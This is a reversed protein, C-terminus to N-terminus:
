RRREQDSPSPRRRAPANGDMLTEEQPTVQPEAAEDVEVPTKPGRGLAAMKVSVQATFVSDPYRDMILSFFHAARANDFIISEHIWGIAYLAKPAYESNPYDDAIKQYTDIAVPINQDTFLAREADKFLLAAPEAVKATSEGLIQRAAAAQESGPHTDILIRFLSDRVATNRYEKEHLLAASYIAKAAGAHEGFLSIVEDYEALASDVQGFQFLYAEALQLKNAVLSNVRQVRAIENEDVPPRETDPVPLSKELAALKRREEMFRLEPHVGHELLLLELQTLGYANSAEAMLAGGQAKSVLNNLRILEGIDKARRNAEEVMTSKSYEIKVKHYNEKAKAFSRLDEQYIQGMRFYATAAAETRKNELVVLEYQELADHIRSSVQLNTGSLTENIAKGEHYTIDALELQVHGRRAKYTENELLENCVAVAEKFKGALKLAKAYSLLADFQMARNSDHKLCAKFSEAAELPKGNVIQCEGLKFYAMTKVAKDRSTHAAAKYELEAPHFNNQRFNMEGLLYRAEERVESKLKEASLLEQLLIRASAYDELEINTKALWLRAPQFYSGKPFYKILEQFKRQAKIYDQKYFFSEGLIFLADDVYKSNPYVELIKSAKEITEDYKKQEAATPIDGQRREREKRAENHLKKTNHFTNFYACSSFSLCCAMAALLPINRYPIVQLFGSRLITFYKGEVFGDQFASGIFNFEM